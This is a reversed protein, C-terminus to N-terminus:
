EGYAGGDQAGADEDKLFREYLESDLQAGASGRGSLMERAMDLALQATHAEVLSIAKEQELQAQVRAQGVIEKAQEDAESVIRAYVVEAQKKAEALMQASEAGARSLAQEYQTKLKEAEERGNRAQELGDRILNKRKEMVATVPDILFHRLILFLIVVNIMTYLLNLNIQLM